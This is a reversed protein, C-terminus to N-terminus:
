FCNITRPTPAQSAILAYMTEPIRAGMEGTELVSASTTAPLASKMSELQWAQWPPACHLLLLTRKVGGGSALRTSAPCNIVSSRGTPVKLAAAVLSIRAVATAGSPAAPNLGGERSEKNANGCVKKWLPEASVSS